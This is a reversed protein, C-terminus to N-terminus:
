SVTRQNIVREILAVLLPQTATISASGDVDEKVTYGLEYALEILLARAADVSTRRVTFVLRDDGIM